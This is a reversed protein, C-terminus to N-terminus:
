LSPETVLFVQQEELNLKWYGCRTQHARRAGLFVCVYTASVCLIYICVCLFM